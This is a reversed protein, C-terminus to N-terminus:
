AGRDRLPAVPAPSAKNPGDPNPQQTHKDAITSAGITHGLLYAILPLAIIELTRM